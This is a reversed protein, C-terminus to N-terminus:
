ISFDVRHRSRRRCWLAIVGLAMVSATSPEPVTAQSGAGLLDTYLAGFNTHWVEYDADDIVGFSDGFNNGNARLDTTSGYTNRWVVYDAADVVGDRTYDGPPLDSVLIPWGDFTYSFEELALKSRGGDNGDYYHYTFYKIGDEEFESFHGPGISSGDTALLLEGGGATMPTGARDRFPGTPSTSRGVKIKYTSNVGACCTDWNVYLYYYDGNKTLFPAEIANPPNVSNRAINLTPSSPTIRMGTAPNLETIYIGNWFSGFTMWMRNTSDDYFIGPDIANFQHFNTESEIVMGQDVWEYNPSNFDLTTNTAMGIVSNQSGFSSVSYYLRYQGNFHFVDPAWMFNPNNPVEDDAWVPISSFVGPANLWHTLNTSYKSTIPVSNGGGSGTAFLYYRDGEKIIRSPDHLRLNGTLSIGTASNGVLLPVALGLLIWPFHRTRGM